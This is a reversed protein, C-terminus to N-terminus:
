RQNWNELWRPHCEVEHSKLKRVQLTPSTSSIKQNSTAKFDMVLSLKAKGQAEGTYSIEVNEDMPFLFSYWAINESDLIPDLLSYINFM